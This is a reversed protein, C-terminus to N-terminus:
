GTPEKGAQENKVAIGQIKKGKQKRERERERKKRKTPFDRSSCSNKENLIEDRSRRRM